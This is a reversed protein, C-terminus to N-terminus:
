CGNSSASSAAMRVLRLRSATDSAVMVVLRLKDVASVVTMILLVHIRYGYTVSSAVSSM